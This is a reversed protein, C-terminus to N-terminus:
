APPWSLQQTSTKQTKLDWPLGTYRKADGPTQLLLNSSM